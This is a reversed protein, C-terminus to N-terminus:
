IVMLTMTILTMVLELIMDVTLTFIIMRDEHGRM